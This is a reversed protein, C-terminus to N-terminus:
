RSRHLTTPVTLCARHDQDLQHHGDLPQAESLHDPQLAIQLYQLHAFQGIYAMTPYEMGASDGQSDRGIYKNQNWGTNNNGM